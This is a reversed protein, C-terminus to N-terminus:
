EASIYLNAMPTNSTGDFQDVFLLFSYYRGEVSKGDNIERIGTDDLLYAGNKAVAQSVLGRYDVCLHGNEGFTKSLWKSDDLKKLAKELEAFSVTEAVVTREVKGQVFGTGDGNLQYGRTFTKDNENCDIRVAIYSVAGNMLDIQMNYVKANERELRADEPLRKSELMAGMDDCVFALSNIEATPKKLRIGERPQLQPIIAAAIAGVLLVGSIIGFAVAKKGRKHRNLCIIFLVIALALLVGACILAATLDSINM